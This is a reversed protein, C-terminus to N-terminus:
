CITCKSCCEAFGGGENASSNETIPAPRYNVLIKKQSGQASPVSGITVSEILPESEEAMSAAVFTTLSKLSDETPPPGEILSSSPSSHSSAGDILLEISQRHEMPPAQATDYEKPQRSFLDWIARTRIQVKARKDILTPDLEVWTNIQANIDDMWSKKEEPTTTYLTYTKDTTVIQFLNQTDASNPLSRLWSTALVISGKLHYYGMVDYAYILIDNFLIFQCTRELRTTIKHLTGERIFKRSPAMLNRKPKFRDQLEMIKMTNEAKKISENVHDTVQQFKQVSETLKIFDPHERPTNFQLNKLLLIYRPLRQIPAILFAHVGLNQNDEIRQSTQLFEAFRPNTENLQQITGLAIDYNQSYESYLKFLPAFQLFIDGLLQNDNWDNIRNELCILFETNVNLITEINSFLRKMDEETVIAEPTRITAKLPQVYLGILIKLNKVYLKETELIEKVIENRYTRPTLLRSLNSTSKSRKMSPPGEENLGTDSQSIHLGPLEQTSTQTSEQISSPLPLSPSTQTTLEPTSLSTIGDEDVRHLQSLPLVDTM